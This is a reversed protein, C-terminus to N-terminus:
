NTKVLEGLEKLQLANNNSNKLVANKLEEFEADNNKSSYAAFTTTRARNYYDYAKRAEEIKQQRLLHQPCEPFVKLAVLYIIPVVIVVCPILYYDLYSSLIYGLFIGVCIFLSPM